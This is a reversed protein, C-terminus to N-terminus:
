CVVRGEDENDADGTAGLFNAESFSIRGPIL